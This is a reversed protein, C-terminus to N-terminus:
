RRMGPENQAGAERGHWAQEARTLTEAVCASLTEWAYPRAAERRAARRGPDDEALARRIAAVFADPDEAFHIWRAVPEQALSELPTSVVPRGLALYEYIKLPNVARRVDGAKFPSLCVDFAGVYGPISDQPRPGLFHVNPERALRAAGRADHVPGLMVLSAKPFARATALLLDYDLYVFIAGMFGIWPRPLARLEEPAGQPESTQREIWAGRVGNPVVHLEGAPTRSAHREALLPSTTFVLDAGRLAEEVCRIMTPRSHAGAEYAGLDDVLDFILREAQLAARAQVYLPNYLWLWTRDHGLRAAALRLLRGWLRYQFRSVWPHTWLPLGRPPTLTWLNPLRRRMRARSIRNISGPPCHPAPRRLISFSPEVYLVRRTRALHAMFHQKRFWAEDWYQTSACIILPDSRRNDSV